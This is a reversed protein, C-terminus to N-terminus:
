KLEQLLEEISKDWTLENTAEIFEDMDLPKLPREQRIANLDVNRQLNTHKGLDLTSQTNSFRNIVEDLADIFQEETAAAVERIIRIKKHDLSM